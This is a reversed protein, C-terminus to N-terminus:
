VGESYGILLFGQSSVNEVAMAGPGRSFGVNIRKDAWKKMKPKWAQNKKKKKAEKLQRDFKVQKRPFLYVSDLASGSRYGLVCIQM